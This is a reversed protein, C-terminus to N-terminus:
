IVEYGFHERLSHIENFDYYKNHYTQIEELNGENSANIIGEICILNEPILEFAEKIEDSMTTYSTIQIIRFLEDWVEKDAYDNTLTKIIDGSKSMSELYVKVEELFYYEDSVMFTTDLNSKIKNHKIMVDTIDDSLVLAYTCFEM